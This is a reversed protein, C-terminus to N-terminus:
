VDKTVTVRVEVADLIAYGSNLNGNFFKLTAGGSGFVAAPVTTWESWIGQGIANFAESPSFNYATPVVGASTGHSSNKRRVRMEVIVNYGGQWYNYINSGFTMVGDKWYSMGSYRGQAATAGYYSDVSATDHNVTYMSSPGFVATFTKATVPPVNFTSATPNLTGHITGFDEYAPANPSTGWTHIVSGNQAVLGNALANGRTNKCRGTAGDTMIICWNANVIDVNDCKVMAGQSGLIGAGGNVGCDINLATISVYSNKAIIPETTTRQILGMGNTSQLVVLISNDESTINGNIVATNVFDLIILGAGSYGKISIEENITGFIDFHIDVGNLIKRGKLVTNLVYNVSSYACGEGIAYSAGQNIVGPIVPCDYDDAEFYPIVAGSEGFAAVLKEGDKVQLGNYQLDTHVSATGSGIKFTKNSLDIELTGDISRLKGTTVEGLNASIASLSETLIFSAVIKGDMTIATAYPGNIGTSSYGFGNLNARWLKTATAPDETDMILIEGPRKVVHGGLANTLLTTAEDIAKELDTKNLSIVSAMDNILGNLKTLANATTKTFSGIEVDANKGTLLDKKIRIIRAKHNLGLDKYTCQVTDGLRVKVLNQFAKYKTTNELLILDVKINKVPIDCQTNTYYALAAARLLVIAAAEDIDNDADVGIDFEVEKIHPDPFENLHASDVYVEPLELGDKGKPRMRTILSDWDSEIVVGKINKGYEITAGNDAGIRGKIAIVHNNVELEGGWRTLISDSGILCQMPNKNIFYQTNVTAIDSSATFPHPFNTGNLVDQMAGLCNKNTPRVDRVENGLLDWVRHRCYITSETANDIVKYIRFPQEDMYILRGERILKWKEAKDHKVDIEATYYKNLANDSEARTVINTIDGLGFSSYDISDHEFLKIM